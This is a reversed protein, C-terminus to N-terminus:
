FTVWDIATRVTKSNVIATRVTKSNVIVSKDAMIYIKKYMKQVTNRM